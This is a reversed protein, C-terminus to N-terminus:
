TGRAHRSSSYTPVESVVVMDDRLAPILLFSLSVVCSIISLPIKCVSVSFTVLVFIRDCNKMWHIRIRKRNLSGKESDFSWSLTWTESIQLKIKSLPFFFQDFNNAERPFQYTTM